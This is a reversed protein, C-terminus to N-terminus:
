YVDKKHLHSAKPRKSLVCRCLTKWHCSWSTTLSFHLSTKPPYLLAMAWSTWYNTRLSVNSKQVLEQRDVQEMFGVELYFWRFSIYQFYWRSLLTISLWVVTDKIVDIQVRKSWYVITKRRKAHEKYITQDPSFFRSFLNFCKACKWAHHIAPSSSILPLLLRPILEHVHAPFVSSTFLM